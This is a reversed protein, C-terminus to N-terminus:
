SMAKALARDRLLVAQAARLLEVERRQPRREAEDDVVRARDALHDGGRGGVLAEVGLELTVLRVRPDPRLLSPVGNAGRRARDGLHLESADFVLRGRVHAHYRPPM